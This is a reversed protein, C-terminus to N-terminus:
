EIALYSVKNTLGATYNSSYVMTFGTTTISNRKVGVNPSNFGPGVSDPTLMVTPITNFTKNFTVAVEIYNNNSTEITVSGKDINLLQKNVYECSYTDTTSDSKTNSVQAVVGASQFAKIIYNTTVYPQMNNHAQGGGNSNTKVADSSANYDGLCVSNASASPASYNYNGNFLYHEHSPMEAITLKHTEEGGTTGLNMRNSQEEFRDYGIPVKYDNLDPVNFTTSGDGAGYQEGIIAFLDAYTTRSVAQGNCPLWNSPTTKSTYPMIAGIPLTDGTIAGGVVEWQAKTLNYKKLINDNTDVWLAGDEPDEPPTASVPISTGGSAGGGISILTDGDYYYSTQSSIIVYLIGRLPTEGTEGWTNDSTATYIKKDTTNFYKDGTTCETPATKEVGILEINQLDYIGKDMQNLNTKNIPKAGTEGKNLWNVREYIM